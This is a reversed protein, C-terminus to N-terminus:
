LPNDLHDTKSHMKRHIPDDDHSHGDAASSSIVLKSLELIFLGIIIFIFKM